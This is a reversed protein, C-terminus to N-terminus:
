KGLKDAQNKDLNMMSVKMAHLFRKTFQIMTKLAFIENQIREIYKEVADNAKGMDGETLGEKIKIHSLKVYLNHLKDSAEDIKDSNFLMEGNQSNDSM